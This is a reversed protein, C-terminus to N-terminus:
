LLNRGKTKLRAKAFCNEGKFVNKAGLIQPNGQVQRSMNSYTNGILMERNNRLRYRALEMKIRDKREREKYSMLEIEDPSLKRHGEVVTRNRNFLKKLIEGMAM